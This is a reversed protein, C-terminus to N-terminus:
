MQYSTTDAGSKKVGSPPVQKKINIYRPDLCVTGKYGMDLAYISISLNYGQKLWWGHAARQKESEVM